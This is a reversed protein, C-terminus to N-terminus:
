ERQKGSTVRRVFDLLIEGSQDGPAGLLHNAGFHDRGEILRSDSEGGAERILRALREAARHSANGREVSLFLFPPGPRVDKVHAVPSAERWADERDGFAQRIYRAYSSGQKVMPVLDYAGGSWAVVGGLDAPRLDVQALYRPDLALLTVLHCGASHGLLVMKKPDGGYRSAHDHVWRVAAAVDSVHAPHAAAPSLRYNVSVFVIGHENLFKPKYSVEAKDRRSWEGGHVFIVVPAAKAGKPWYVDLRQKRDDGYAVDAALVTTKALVAQQSPREPQKARAGAPPPEAAGPSVPGQAGAAVFITAVAALVRRWSTPHSM